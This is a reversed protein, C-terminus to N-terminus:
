EYGVRFDPDAFGTLCLTRSHASVRGILRLAGEHLPEFLPQRDPAENIGGEDSIRRRAIQVIPPREAADQGEHQAHLDDGADHQRHMVRRIDIEGEIGDFADHAVHIVAPEQAVDVGVARREEEEGDIDMDRAAHIVAGVLLRALHQPDEAHDQEEQHDGGAEHAVHQRPALHAEPRRGHDGVQERRDGADAIRDDGPQPAAKRDAIRREIAEIRQVVQQREDDDAHDPQVDPRQM